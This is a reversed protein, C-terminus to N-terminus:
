QDERRPRKASEPQREDGGQQNSMEYGTFVGELVARGVAERLEGDPNTGDAEARQMIDHVSQMLASTLTESAADQQHQSPPLIPTESATVPSATLHSRLFAAVDPYDDELYEIPSVGEINRRDIIAGHGILWQATEVNEVTYLPTDGDADTANVDGGHSVLYSLVQLQGYSAAAHM